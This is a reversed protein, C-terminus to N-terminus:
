VERNTPLTLHTYSVAYRGAAYGERLAEAPPQGPVELWPSPLFREPAANRWRELEDPDSGSLLAKVVNHRRMEALVRRLSEEETATAAGRGQCPEPRCIAAAGAPIWPPHHTHMHMDIIPPQTQSALPHEAGGALILSLGLAVAEVAVRWDRRPGSEIGM